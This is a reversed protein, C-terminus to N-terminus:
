MLQTQSLKNSAKLSWDPAFIIKQLCNEDFDGIIIDPKKPQIVYTLAQPFEIVSCNNEWYLILLKFSPFRWFLLLKVFLFGDVFVSDLCEFM